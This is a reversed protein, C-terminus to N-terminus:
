VGGLQADGLRGRGQKAARRGQLRVGYKSDETGLLMLASKPAGQRRHGLM